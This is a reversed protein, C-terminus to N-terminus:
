WTLVRGARSALMSGVQDDVPLVFDTAGLLTNDVTCILRLSVYVKDDTVGYTGVAVAQANYDVSLDTIDRSLLFQGDDRIIVSGDRLTTQVLSYGKQTLRAAVFEAMQLGFMSGSDVDNIDVLTGVLIRKDSLGQSCVCHISRQTCLHDVARYTKHIVAEGFVNPALLVQCSGGLFTACCLVVGTLLSKNFCLM